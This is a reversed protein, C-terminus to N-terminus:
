VGNHLLPHFPPTAPFLGTLFCRNYFSLCRRGRMEVKSSLMPSPPKVWAQLIHVFRRSKRIDINNGEYWVINHMLDIWDEQRTDM